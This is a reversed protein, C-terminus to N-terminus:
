ARTSIKYIYRKYYGFHEDAIYNNYIADPVYIKFTTDLTASFINTGYLVPVTGIGSAPEKFIVEKLKSLEAFACEGIYNVTSPVTISELYENQYFANEYIMTLHSLDYSSSVTFSYSTGEKLIPYYIMTTINTGNGKYFLVDDISVFFTNGLQQNKCYIHKLKSAGMFAHSSISTLTSPLTITDLNLSNSFANDLIKIVNYTGITDPIVISREQGEYSIIEVGYSSGDYTIRYSFDADSIEGVKVISKYYNFYNIYDNLSSSPVRINVETKNIEGLFYQEKELTLGTTTGPTNINTIYVNRLDNCGYFVNEGLFTLMPYTRVIQLNTCNSFAYKNITKANPLSLYTVETNNAFAYEKIVEVDSLALTAANIGYFAYKGVIKVNSTNISDLYTISDKLMYYAYDGIEVVTKNDLTSPVTYESELTDGLYRIIKVKNDGLDKVMYDPNETSIVGLEFIHSTYLIFTNKCTNLITENPSIAVYVIYTDNINTFTYNRTGDSVDVYPSRLTRVGNETVYNENFYVTELQVDNYFVYDRITKVNRCVVSTLHINNAFAYNKIETVQGTDLTGTLDCNNFCYLGLFEVNSLDISTILRDNEFARENITQTRGLNVTSLKDCNSFAYAGVTFNNNLSVRELSKCKYFAYSGIETNSNFLVTTMSTCGYFCYDPISKFNIMVNDLKICGYFAGEGITQSDSFYDVKTLNTCDKFTYSGINIVETLEIEKIRENQYFAYDGINKVKSFKIKGTEKNFSNSTSYVSLLSTCGSFAYDGITEVNNLDLEGLNQCDKFCGDPITKTTNSLTVTNLYTCGSFIGDSSNNFDKYNTLDLENLSTNESFAYDHIIINSELTTGIIIKNFGTKYFAYEDIETITSPITLTYQGTVNLSAFASSGIRTVPKTVSNYTLETPVTYNSSIKSNTPVFRIIQWGDGVTKVIYKGETTDIEAEGGEFIRGVYGKQTYLNSTGNKITCMAETKAGGFFNDDIVPATYINFQNYNNELNLNTFKECGDFVYAGGSVMRTMTVTELIKNKSFARDGYTVEKITASDFLETYTKFQCESFAYDDVTTTWIPLTIDLCESNAEFGKYAYKGIEIVPYEEGEVYLYAPINRLKNDDIINKNVIGNACAIKVGIPTNYIDTLINVVYEYSTDLVGNSDKAYAVAEKIYTNPIGKFYTQNSESVYYRSLAHNKANWDVGFSVNSWVRVEDFYIFRLRTCGSFCSAGISRIEGFHIENLKYCQRFASEGLTEVYSFDFGEVQTKIEEGSVITTEYKLDPLSECQYFAYSRIDSIRSNTIVNVLAKSYAFAYNPVYSVWTKPLRIEEILSAQYFMYDGYSNIGDPIYIFNQYRYDDETTNNNYYHIVTNYTDNLQDYVEEKERVFTLYYGDTQNEGNIINANTLHAYDLNEKVMGFRTLKNLAYFAYNGINYLDSDNEDGIVVTKINRNQSFAHDGIKRIQPMVVTRLENHSSGNLFAKNGIKTVNRLWVETFAVQYFAYDGIETLYPDSIFYVTADSSVTMGKYSMVGLSVIEYKREDGTGVKEINYLNSYNDLENEKIINDLFETLKVSPNFETTDSNLTANMRNVKFGYVTTYHNLSTEVTTYDSSLNYYEVITAEENITIKFKALLNTYNFIEGSYYTYIIHKICYAYATGTKYYLGDEKNVSVIGNDLSLISSTINTDNEDLIKWELSETVHRYLTPEENINQYEDYPDQILPAILSKINYTENNKLDITGIYSGPVLVNTYLEIDTDLTNSNRQYSVIINKTQELYADYDDDNVYIYNLGSSDTALQDFTIIRSKGANVDGDPYTNKRTDVVKISGLDSSIHTSLTDIHECYLTGISCRAFAYESIKSVNSTYVDNISSRYFCYTPIETYLPGFAIDLYVNANKNFNSFCFSSLKFMYSKSNDLATRGTKDLIESGLASSPITYKIQNVKGTSSQIGTIEVGKIGNTLVDTSKDGVRLGTAEYEDTGINRIFSKNLYFGDNINGAPKLLFMGVEVDNIKYSQNYWYGYDYIIGYSTFAVKYITQMTAFTVTDYSYPCLLYTDYYSIYYNNVIAQGDTPVGLWYKNYKPLGIGDSTVIQVGEVSRNPKNNTIDVILLRNTEGVDSLRKMFAGAGVTSVNHCVIKTLKTATFSLGLSGTFYNQLYTTDDYNSTVENAESFAHNGITEATGLDAFRLSKCVRFASDNITKVKNCYLFEINSAQFAGKGIETITPAFTVYVFSDDSSLIDVNYYSYNGIKNASYNTGNVDFIGYTNTSTNNVVSDFETKSVSMNSNSGTTDQYVTYPMVINGSLKPGHYTLIELTHNLTDLKANYLYINKRLGVLRPSETTGFNRNENIDDSSIYYEGVFTEKPYASKIKNTSSSNVLKTVFTRREETSTDDNGKIFYYKTYSPFTHWNSYNGLKLNTTALIEETLDYSSLDVYYPNVYRFAYSSITPSGLEIAKIATCGSFAYEGIETANPIFVYEILNDNEFASSKIKEVNPINIQVLSTCKNFAYSNITKVNTLDIYKLKNCDYFARTEITELSDSILYILSTCGSFAELKILNVNEFYAYGTYKISDLPNEKNYKYITSLSVCGKFANKGITTTSSTLGLERLKLCNQFSGDSIEIISGFVISEFSVCGKFANEEIVTVSPIELTSIATCGSFASNKIITAEPMILTNIKKDNYFAYEGIVAASKIDVKTLQQCNRFAYNGISTASYITVEDISTLGDFANKGINLVGNGITIKSQVGSNNSTNIYADRGISSVQIVNGEYEITNPTINSDAIDGTFAVIEITGNDLMRIYRTDFLTSHCYVHNAIQQSRQRFQAKFTDVVSEYVLYYTNAPFALLFNNNDSIPYYSYISVESVTNFANTGLSVLTSPISISHLGTNKFANASIYKINVPLILTTLGTKGLMANQGIGYKTTTSNVKYETNALSLDLYSLDRLTDSKLYTFDNDNMFTDTTCEIVLKEIGKIMDPSSSFYNSLVYEVKNTQNPITLDLYLRYANPENEIETVWTTQVGEQTVDSNTFNTSGSVNFNNSYIGKIIRTNYRTSSIPLTIANLTHDLDTSGKNITTTGILGNNYIDIQIQIVNALVMSELHIWGITGSNQINIDTIEGASVEDITVGENVTLKSDEGMVIYSNDRYYVISPELGAYNNVIYVDKVNLGKGNQGVNNYIKASPGLAGQTYKGYMVIDAASRGAAIENDGLLNVTANPVTFTIDGYVILQSSKSMDFTIDNTATYSVNLDGNITLTHGNLDLNLPRNIDISTKPSEPNLVIDTELKLTDGYYALNVNKLVEIMQEASYISVISNHYAEEDEDPAGVQGYYIFVSMEIQRNFYSSGSSRLALESLGYDLRFYRTNGVTKDEAEKIEGLQVRSTLGDFTRTNINNENFENDTRSNPNSLLYKLVKKEDSDLTLDNTETSSAEISANIQSTVDTILYWFSTLDTAYKKDITFQTKVMVDMDAKNTVKIIRTQTNAEIIENEKATLQAEYGSDSTSLSIALPARNLAGPIFADTDIFKKIGTTDGETELESTTKFVTKNLSHYDDTLDKVSYGLIDLKGDLSSLKALDQQNPDTNLKFGRGNFWAYTATITLTLTLISILLILKKNTKLTTKISKL